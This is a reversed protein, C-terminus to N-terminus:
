KHKSYKRVLYEIAEEILEPGNKGETHKVRAVLEDYIQQYDARIFFTKQSRHLLAIDSRRRSKPQPATPNNVEDNSQTFEDSRKLMAALWDNEKNKLDRAM